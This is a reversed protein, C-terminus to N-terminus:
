QYQNMKFLLSKRVTPWEDRLISFVVTDRLAGEADIQHNRLVGDQKAGLRSIANRSATNYWHTRFEVAICNLTDFAHTLLLYKCATNVGTKQHAKAYWTYGIEVRRHQPTANCFRTAGIVTNSKKDIVVFPLAKDRTLEDLVSDIYNDITKESPVSTYWCKWLEGDAAAQLLDAKHEKRLPILKVLDGELEIENLWKSM